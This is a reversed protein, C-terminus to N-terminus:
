PHWGLPRLAKVRTNAPRPLHSPSDHGGEKAELLANPIPQHKRGDEPLVAEQSVPSSDGSSSARANSGRDM